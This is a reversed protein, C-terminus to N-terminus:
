LKNNNSNTTTITTATQKNLSKGSCSRYPGYEKDDTAALAESRNGSHDALSLLLNKLIGPILLNGLRQQLVGHAYQAMDEIGPQCNVAIDSGEKRM